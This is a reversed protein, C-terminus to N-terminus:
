YAEIRNRYKAVDEKDESNYIMQKVAQDIMQNKKLKSRRIDKRCVPCTKKRLLCESICHNCFTHGCISVRCGMVYDFCIPCTIEDQSLIPM